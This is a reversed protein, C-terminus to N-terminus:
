GFARQYNRQYLKRGDAKDWISVFGNDTLSGIVTKGLDLQVADDVLLEVSRPNCPLEFKLEGTELDFARAQGLTYGCVVMEDDCVLFNVEMIEQGYDTVLPESFKWQDILRWSAAEQRIQQELTEKQYLSVM